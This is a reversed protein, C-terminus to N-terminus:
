GLVRAPRSGTSWAASRSMSTELLPPVKKLAGKGFLGAPTCVFGLPRADMSVGCSAFEGTRTLRLRADGLGTWGLVDADSEGPPASCPAWVRRLPRPLGPRCRTTRNAVGRFDGCVEAGSIPVGCLAVSASAFLEAFTTALTISRSKRSPAESTRARSSVTLALLRIESIDCRHKPSLKVQQHVLWAGDETENYHWLM